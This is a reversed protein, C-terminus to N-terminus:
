FSEFAKVIRNSDPHKEYDIMIFSGNRIAKFKVGVVYFVGNKDVRDLYRKGMKTKPNYRYIGIQREGITLAFGQDANINRTDLPNVSVVTLGNKDFHQILEYYTRKSDDKEAWACASLLLMLPLAALMLLKVFKGSSM